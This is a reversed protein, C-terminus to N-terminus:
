MLMIMMQLRDFIVAKDMSMIVEKLSGRWHFKKAMGWYWAEEHKAESYWQIETLTSRM